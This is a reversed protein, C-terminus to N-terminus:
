KTKLHKNMLVMFSPGIRWDTASPVVTPGLSMNGLLLDEKGDRDLDGADMCLWRGKEAAPISNIKFKLHGLNEFFVFGEEPAKAYDAFYAISAIDMDGDHDFDRTVSKFCGNIPYFFQQEFKNDGKNVYIYIGHYPKLVQSFDGNDGSTHIIDKLGDQNIDTLEFGSSGTAPQFRLVTTQQFNANGKNTFLIIREDGQTFLAWIDLLGDKNFDDLRVDIVGPSNQLVQKDFGGKQNATFLSLSGFLHGFECVLYDNLQDNNLDTAVIRVPRALREFMVTTDLRMKGTTSDIFIKKVFGSRGINPMLQGVFCAVIENRGTISIDTIGAPLPLSDIVRLKEDFMYLIRQLADSRFVRSRNESTDLKICITAPSYNNSEPVAVSFNALQRGILQDKKQPSLSDPAVEQFYDLIKQWGTSDILARDPYIPDELYLDGNYSPYEHDQFSFLGLRPGMQPLVGTQWHQKDIMAPDPLLHCSQCYAAVVEKGKADAPTRPTEPGSSNNNCGAVVLFVVLLMEVPFRKNTM